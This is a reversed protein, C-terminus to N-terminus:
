GPTKVWNESDGEMIVSFNQLMQSIAYFLCDPVGRPANVRSLPFHRVHHEFESGTAMSIIL